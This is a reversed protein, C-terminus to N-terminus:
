LNGHPNFEVPDEDNSNELTIWILCTSRVGSEMLIIGHISFAALFTALKNGFPSDAYANSIVINYQIRDLIFHGM